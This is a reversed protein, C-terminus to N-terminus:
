HFRISSDAIINNKKLQTIRKIRENKKEPPFLFANSIQVAVVGSFWFALVVQAASATHFGGCGLGGVSVMAEVVVGVFDEVGFRRRWWAGDVGFRSQVIVTGDNGLRRPRRRPVLKVIQIM